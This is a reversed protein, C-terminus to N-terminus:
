NLKCTLSCIGHLKIKKLERKINSGTECASGLESSFVSVITHIVSLKEFMFISGKVKQIQLCMVPMKVDGNIQTKKMLTQNGDDQGETRMHIFIIRCFNARIFNDM